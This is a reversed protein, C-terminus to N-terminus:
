ETGGEKYPAPLTQQQWAIVELNDDIVEEDCNMWKRLGANYWLVVVNMVAYGKLHTTCIVDSCDEPLRDKCYIWGNNYEQAVEDIISIADELCIYHRGTGNAQIDIMADALNLHFQKTEELKEKILEFVNM